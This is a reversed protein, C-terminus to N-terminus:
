LLKNIQKLISPNKLQRIIHRNTKSVGQHLNHNLIDNYIKLLQANIVDEKEIYKQMKYFYYSIRKWSYLLNGAQIGAVPGPFINTKQKATKLKQIYQRTKNIRQGIETSTVYDGPDIAVILAGINADLVNTVGSVIASQLSKAKRDFELYAIQDRISLTADDCGSEFLAEAIDINDQDSVGELVLTFNYNKNRM